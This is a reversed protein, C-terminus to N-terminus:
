KSIGCKKPSLSLPQESYYREMAEQYRMASKEYREGWEDCMQKHRKRVLDIYKLPKGLSEVQIIPVGCFEPQKTVTM